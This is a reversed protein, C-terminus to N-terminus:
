SVRRRLNTYGLVIRSVTQSVNPVLYEPPASWQPPGAVAIQLSRLISETEIGSLINSGCEITEPRETVDRITVNPIGLISCEEQVTGSDTMVAFANKELHVFDFFGFPELLRIRDEDCEIEFRRIKEATRPHVSMLVPLSFVSSAEDLANFIAKLRIPEDVNESRHLTVLFYEGHKLGLESLVKSSDIEKAFHNLVEFIPNGSVFIRDREIGEAILNERSRETYPMLITSCHDIIRRNIEEPVRDDFCRNGAELHFVPIGARAAPIAALGSNTDGLILVKDPRHERLVKDVRSIIMSAQEGFDSSEIGLEVDPPRVNMEEHFIDSLLQHFNQGTHVSIHDCHRDLIRMILSLRIIEPRTGYITLVKM